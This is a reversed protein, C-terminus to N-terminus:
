LLSPRTEFSWLWPYALLFVDEEDGKELHGYETELCCYSGIGWGVLVGRAM